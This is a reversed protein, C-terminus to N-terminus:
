ERSSAFSFGTSDTSSSSALPFLFKKDRRFRALAEREVEREKESGFFRSRKEKKRKEEGEFVVVAGGPVEGGRAAGIVGLFLRMAHTRDSSSRPADAFAAPGAAADAGEGAGEAGM